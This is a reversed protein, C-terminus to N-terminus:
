HLKLSKKITKVDHMTVFNCEVQYFLFTKWQLNVKAAINFEKVTETSGEIILLMTFISQEMLAVSYCYLSPNMPLTQILFYSCCCCPVTLITSAKALLFSGIQTAGGLTALSLLFLSQWTDSNCANKGKFIAFPFM